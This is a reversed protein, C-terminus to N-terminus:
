LILTWAARDINHAWGDQAPDEDNIPQWTIQAVMLGAPGIFNPANTSVVTDVLSDTTTAIRGDILTFSNTGFNRLRISQGLGTRGVSSEFAFRLSTPNSFPATGSIEIQSTQTVDDPFIVLRNNDSNLLSLLGGSLEFGETVVYSDPQVSAGDKIRVKVFGAGYVLEVSKAVPFNELQISSFLGTVSPATLVTFETGAVPDYNDILRVIMKGNLTVAGTTALWDYTTGQNPGGLEVELAGNVGQNFAGAITLKGASLGPAVTAQNSFGSMSVTGQGEIRGPAVNNLASGTVTVTTNNKVRFTGTNSHTASAAGVSTPVNFEMLGANSFTGSITRSGGTGANSFVQGTPLVTLVGASVTINSSYGGSLSDMIMTGANTFGNASTFVAGGADNNGRVLIQHGNLVNGLLTSTGAVEITAPNTASAVITLQSGRLRPVGVINGGVYDFAAADILFPSNVNLNGGAQRFVQGQSALTTGANVNFNGGSNTWIASPKSLSTPAAFTVTGTNTVSGSITRSGGTGVTTGLTGSNTLVGSTVALQSAYGGNTSDLTITGANSYGTASTMVGTGEVNSGRVNISQGAKLNGTLTGTGAMMFAAAGNAGSEINLTSSFLNAMGNVSGGNMNFVASYMAFNNAGFLVGGGQSFVQGAGNVVTPAFLDMNGNNAYAGNTKGFSLDQNVTMTGNNTFDTAITRPGSTGVEVFFEGNSVLTGTAMTIASAYGGGVSSMSIRGNNIFGTGGVNAAGATSDGIIDVAKNTGIVGGITSNSHLSVEGVGNATIGLVSSTLRPVGVITGDNFNFTNNLIHFGGGTLDISGGNQSFVQGGANMTLTRTLVMDGTNTHLGGTKALDTPQFIEVLGTNVLSANLARPGSTGVNSTFIGNNTFQGNTVAFAAGWGGNISSLSVLGNNTISNASTLTATGSSGDGIITISKNAGITGSVTSTGATSVGGIGSSSIGLVTNALRPTGLITGGNFNFTAGEVNFSGSVNLTGNNQNFVQGLSNMSVSSPVNFQATNTYVGNNRSLTLGRNIQVTGNNLLDASLIRAGGTGVSTQLTGTNTLVGTNLTLQSTWGGSNSTLDIMGGNAYGAESILNATGYSGNGQITITTAPKPDGSLSNQGYMIFSASGSASGGINLAASLFAPPGSVTGGNFNFSSGGTLFLTGTANITGASHDLITGVTNLTMVKSAAINITGTNTHTVGQTLFTLPGDVNVTGANQLTGAFRRQGGSGAQANFIGSPSNVLTGVVSFQSGWGGGTSTINITGTNTLGNNCTLVGDGYTGNGEIKILGSNAFSGNANSSGFNSITGANTLSNTGGITSNRTIVTGSQIAYTGVSMIRGDMTLIASASNLDFSDLGSINTDLTVTYSGPATIAASNGAGNPVGDPNWLTSNTWAGSVGSEWQYTSLLTSLANGAALVGVASMALISIRRM